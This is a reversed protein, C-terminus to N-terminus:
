VAGKKGPYESLSAVCTGSTSAPSSPQTAVRFDQGNLEVRDVWARLSNILTDMLRPGCWELRKHGTIRECYALLAWESSDRLEGAAKLRLWLHRVLRAQPSNDRRADPSHRGGAGGAFAVGKVKLEEVVRRREKVTMDKTSRKGTVSALFGRYTEDDLGLKRRAMQIFRQYHCAM